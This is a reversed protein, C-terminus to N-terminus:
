YLYRNVYHNDSQSPHEFSSKPLQSKNKGKKKKKGKIPLGWDEVEDVKPESKELLDERVYEADKLQSSFTARIDAELNSFDRSSRALPFSSPSRFQYTSTSLGYGSNAAKAFTDERMQSLKWATEFGLKSAEVESLKEEREILSRYGGVLWEPVCYERGMNIKGVADVELAKTLAQIAKDRIEQFGWM